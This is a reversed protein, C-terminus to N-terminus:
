TIFCKSLVWPNRPPIWGFQVEVFLIMIWLFFNPKIGHMIYICVKKAIGTQLASTNQRLRCLENHRSVARRRFSITDCTSVWVAAIIIIACSFSQTCPMFNQPTNTLKQEENIERRERIPQPSYQLRATLRFYCGGNCYTQSCCFMM